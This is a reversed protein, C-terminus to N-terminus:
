EIQYYKKVESKLNDKLANFRHGVQRHKGEYADLLNKLTRILSKDHKYASYKLILRIETISKANDIDSCFGQFSEM